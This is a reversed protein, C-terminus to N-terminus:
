IHAGFWELQRAISSDFHAGDYMDYHGAGAEVHLAKNAAGVAEYLATGQEPPNVGDEGAVVVLVPCAVQAAHAAPRYNLMERVTLFPIKIDMEPHRQRAEEVFAKSQPDTLVKTIAVFMERGTAAKKDQMRELTSVFAQKEEASMSRTVVQEGDAFSLQSVVAKVAPDAAAAALVHGGGLSTGWLGVRAADIGPQARVFALVTAIDEIQMAPVLRGQEGGSAGFGRYDFTVAAYGAAVFAEAFRPLLVDQIGCFGHCLVIVPADGAIDPRRLTIAIDNDTRHTTIPM